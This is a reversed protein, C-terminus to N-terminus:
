KGSGLADRQYNYNLFKKIVAYQQKGPMGEGKTRVFREIAHVDGPAVVNLAAELLSDVPSRVAPSKQAEQKAKKEEVPEPEKVLVNPVAEENIIEDILKTEESKIQPSTKRAKM